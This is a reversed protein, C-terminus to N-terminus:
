ISGRLGESLITLMTDCFYGVREQTYISENYDFVLDVGGSENRFLNLTMHNAMEGAVSFRVSYRFSAYFSFRHFNFVYESISEEIGNEEQMASLIYEFGCKKHLSAERAATKVKRCLAAFTDTGEVTVRVPVLLTYCGLTDMQEFERNLRPMLFVADRKDTVCSLYLAYVAAFIYSDSINEREEFLEVEKMINKPVSERYSGFETGKVEQPLVAKEFEAGAFYSKWFEKEDPAKKATSLSSIDGEYFVSRMIKKGAIVHLVRQVFLSMGYGDIIIHHFRVYLFVGGGSLPIVEAQYLHHEIDLPLRDMKRMYEEASDMSRENGIGCETIKRSGYSLLWEGERICLSAAFIDASDLVVDAVKKVTAPTYDPLHLKFSITNRASGPCRQEARAIETQSLNLRSMQKEKTM